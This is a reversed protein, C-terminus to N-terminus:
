RGENDRLWQQVEAPNERMYDLMKNDKANIFGLYLFALVVFTVIALAIGFIEWPTFEDAYQKLKSYM